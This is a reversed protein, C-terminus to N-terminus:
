VDQESGVTDKGMLKSKGRKQNGTRQNDGDM